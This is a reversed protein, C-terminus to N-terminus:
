GKLTALMEARLSTRWELLDVSWPSFPTRFSMTRRLIEEQQMLAVLQAVWLISLRNHRATNPETDSIQLALEDVIDRSPSLEAMRIWAAEFESHMEHFDLALRILITRQRPQDTGQFRQFLGRLLRHDQAMVAALRRQELERDSVFSLRTRWNHRRRSLVLLEPESTKQGRFRSTDLFIDRLTGM